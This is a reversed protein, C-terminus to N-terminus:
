RSLHRAPECTPRRLRLNFARSRCRPPQHTDALTLEPVLYGEAPGDSSTLDIIEREVSPVAVDQDSFRPTYASPRSLFPGVPDFAAGSRSPGGRAPQLFYRHGDIGSTYSPVEGQRYSANLPVLSGAGGIPVPQTTQALSLDSAPRIRPLSEAQRMADPNALYMRDSMPSGDSRSGSSQSGTDTTEDDDLVIIERFIEESEHSPEDDEDRWVKVKNLIAEECDRRAAKWGDFRSEFKDKEKLLVEYGTHLHRIHAAVALQVRRSLPVSTATGVRGSGKEFAHYVIKELDNEPIKPFMERIAARATQEDEVASATYGRENSLPRDHAEVFPGIWEAAQQPDLVKLGRTEHYKYGYKKCALDIIQLPFHHGVRHVHHSLKTPDRYISNKPKESVIHV